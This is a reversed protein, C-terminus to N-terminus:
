LKLLTTANSFTATALAHISEPRLKALHALVLVVHAPENLGEPAGTPLIDPADTEILLRDLSVARAAQQVKKNHPRTVSGSFSIYAGLKEFKKAMDASGSYSHIVGGHPLGGNKEILDALLGFANRCHINVPREYKKALDLQATFVQIQDAEDRPTVTRDLGIEGVAASSKRIYEELHALWQRSRSAIFWPHLGFAPLVSPYTDTLRAVDPWDTEQVGCCLVHSVGAALSRQVVTKQRGSFRADQLHAHVDFLNM